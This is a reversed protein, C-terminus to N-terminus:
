SLLTEISSVFVMPNIVALNVKCFLKNRNIIFKSIKTEVIFKALTLIFNSNELNTKVYFPSLFIEKLENNIFFRKFNSKGLEFNFKNNIGKIKIETWSNENLEKPIIVGNQAVQHKYFVFGFELNNRSVKAEINYGYSNCFGYCELNLAHFQNVISECYTKNEKYIPSYSNEYAIM